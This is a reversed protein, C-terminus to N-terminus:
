RCNEFLRGLFTEAQPSLLTYIVIYPHVIRIRINAGIKPRPSGSDPFLALHEYQTRFAARYNLVTAKGAKVFLDNFIDSADRDAAATFVVRAM